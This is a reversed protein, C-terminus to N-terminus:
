QGPTPVSHANESASTAVIEALNENALGTDEVSLLTVAPIHPDPTPEPTANTEASLAAAEIAARSAAALNVEARHTGYWTHLTLLDATARAIEAATAATSPDPLLIFQPVGNPPPLTTPWRAPRGLANSSGAQQELALSATDLKGATILWSYDDTVTAYTTDSSLLSFDLNSIAKWTKGSVTWELETYPGPWVQATVMNFHFPREAPPNATAQGVFALPLFLFVGPLM